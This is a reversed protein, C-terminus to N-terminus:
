TRRLVRGAREGRSGDWTVTGNVMVLDIGDPFAHPREFTAVDEIASPDFVVLDAFAGEAIRGRDRLGFRMAPASTMKRIVAELPLLAEDRCLELARPFTGYDRPHV